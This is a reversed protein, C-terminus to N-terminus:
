KRLITFFKPTSKTWQPWRKSYAAANDESLRKSYTSFYLKLFLDCTHGKPIPIFGHQCPSPPSDIILPQMQLQAELAGEQGRQQAAAASSEDQAEKEEEKKAKRTKGRAKKRSM